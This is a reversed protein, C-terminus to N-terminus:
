SYNLIFLCINLCKWFLAKFFTKEDQISELFPLRFRINLFNTFDFELLM